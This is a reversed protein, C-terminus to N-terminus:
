APPADDQTLTILDDDPDCSFEVPKPFAEVNKAIFGAQWYRAVAALTQSPIVDIAVTRKIWGKSRPYLEDAIQCAMSKAMELSQAEIVEPHHFHVALKKTADTPHEAEIIGLLSVLYMKAKDDEPLRAFAEEPTM